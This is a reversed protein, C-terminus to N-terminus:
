YIPGQAIPTISGDHWMVCLQDRTLPSAHGNTQFFMKARIPSETSPDPTAPTMPVNRMGLAGTVEFIFADEETASIPGYAQFTAIRNRPALVSANNTVLLTSSGGSLFVQIGFVSVTDQTRTTFLNISQDRSGGGIRIEGDGGIFDLPGTGSTNGRTIGGAYAQYFGSGKVTAVIPTSPTPLPGASLRVTGNAAITAVKFSSGVAFGQDRTFIQSGFRWAFVLRSGPPTGAGLTVLPAKQAVLATLGQRITSRDLDVYLCEGDLLDTLGASNATQDKIENFSATSNDFSIRLGQWHVHTGDWEFYEGDSVFPSGTHLLRVNKDSTPSYWYEGGGLEWMRTMAADMWTKLNTISKDGGAFVDGSTFEKRGSPWPFFNARDPNTGGSGLRFFLNRADSVSVIENSANTVVRAIPCVGPISGFDRTSVIIRYDITRALPVTKPVEDEQSADIFMTLDTTSEDVIRTFDIGVYNTSNPSFSGFMRPNTSNLREAARDAPVNFISGAESAFFHVVIADAVNLQLQDAGVAGASLVTLGNVVLPARGALMRGALIDFDNAISSELAKIHPVDIRQSGLINSQRTVAM